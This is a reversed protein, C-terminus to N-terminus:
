EGAPREAVYGKRCDPCVDGARLSSSATPRTAGCNACRYETPGAAADDMRREPRAFTADGEAANAEAADDTGVFSANASSEAARGDDDDDDDASPVLGGGFEVGSGETEPPAADFGEDTADDTASPWGGSGSGSGDDAPVADASPEEGTSGLIVADEEAPAPDDTSADAPTEGADTSAGAAPGTPSRDGADVSSEERAGVAEAAAVLSESAGPADDGTATADDGTTAAAAAAAQVSRIEKNESVIRREGCRACNEVTRYVVVVEDGAERREREVEREGFDHGLLCSLGM